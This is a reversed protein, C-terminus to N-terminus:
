AKVKEAELYDCIDKITVAGRYKSEDIELNFREESRLALEMLDFSNLGLDKKFNTEPTVEEIGYNEKLIKCIEEFM